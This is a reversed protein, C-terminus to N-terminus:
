VAFPPLPTRIKKREALNDSKIRGDQMRVIRQARAALDPDHTILVITVGRQKHLEAFLNFIGDASVSDLNGTPEDALLLIPDNALARAIAVRQREGVSLKVPLHEERHSMGVLELLERAKKIRASVSLPGEFM